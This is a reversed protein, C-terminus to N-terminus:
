DGNNKKNINIQNRYYNYFSVDDVYLLKDAVQILAHRLTEGAFNAYAAEILQRAADLRPGLDEEQM